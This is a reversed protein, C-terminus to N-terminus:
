LPTFWGCFCEKKFKDFEPANLESIFEDRILLECRGNAIQTAKILKGLPKPLISPISWTNDTKPKYVDPVLLVFNKKSQSQITILRKNNKQIDTQDSFLKSIDYAPIANKSPKNKLSSVEIVGGVNEVAASPLLLDFANCKIGIGQTANAPTSSQKKSAVKPFNDHEISTSNEKALAKPTLIEIPGHQEHKLWCSENASDNLRQFCDIEHEELGILQETVLAFRNRETQIGIAWKKTNSSPPPALDLMSSLDIGNLLEGNELEVLYSFERTTRLPHLKVPHEFFSIHDSYLGIVRHNIRCLVVSKSAKKSTAQLDKPTNKEIPSDCNKIFDEIASLCFIETKYDHVSDSSGKSVSDVLLNVIGKSTQINVSYKPSETKTGCLAGTDFQLCAGEQNIVLGEIPAIGFPIPAASTAFDVSSVLQSPLRTFSNGIVCMIYNLETRNTEDINPLTM